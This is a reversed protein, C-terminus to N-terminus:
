AYKRALLEFNYIGCILFWHAANKELGRYKVKTHMYRNKIWAFPHEVKARIASKIRNNEKQLPTLPANRKGKEHFETRMGCDRYAQNNKESMGYASDGWGRTEDGTMLANQQQSDHVSATTFTTNLIFDGKTNTEIHGKYGHYAQGNKKTFTADKDRTNEGYKNKKGKPAEILSGDQIHGEEVTYGMEHLIHQTMIFVTEQFGLENLENRFRCFTTEDPIDKEETIGVFKQFSMRDRLQDEMEPDSLNYMGQLFLCKLLKKIDIFPRGVGNYGRERKSLIDKEMAEWPVVADIKSLLKETRSQGFENRFFEFINMLILFFSTMRIIGRNKEEESVGTYCNFRSLLRINEPHNLNVGCERAGCYLPTRFYPLYM